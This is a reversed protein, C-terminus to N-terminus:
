FSFFCYKGKFGSIQFVQWFVSALLVSVYMTCLDSCLIILVTILTFVVHLLNESMLNLHLTKFLIISVVFSILLWPRLNVPM